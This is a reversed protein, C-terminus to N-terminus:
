LPLRAEPHHRTMLGRMQAPYIGSIHHSATQLGKPDNSGSWVRPM